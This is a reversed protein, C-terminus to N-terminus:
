NWESQVDNSVDYDYPEHNSKWSSGDSEVTPPVYSLTHGTHREGEGRSHHPSMYLTEGPYVDWESAKLHGPRPATHYVDWKPTEPTPPTYSRLEDQVRMGVIRDVKRDRGNVAPTWFRQSQPPNRATGSHAMSSLPHPSVDRPRAFIPITGDKTWQSTTPPSQSSQSHRDRTWPQVPAPRDAYSSTIKRAYVQDPSVFRSGDDSYSTLFSCSNFSRQDFTIVSSPPFQPTDLVSHSISGQQSGPLDEVWDLTTPAPGEESSYPGNIDQEVQPISHRIEPSIKQDWAQSGDISARRSASEQPRGTRSHAPSNQPFSCWNDPERRSPQVSPSSSAQTWASDENADRSANSQPNQSSKIAIHVSAPTQVHRRSRNSEPRARRAEFFGQTDVVTGVNSPVQRQKSAAPTALCSGPFVGPMTFSGEATAQKPDHVFSAPKTHAKRSVASTPTCAEQRKTVPIIKVHTGGKEPKKTPKPRRENANPSSKPREDMQMIPASCHRTEEDLPSIASTIPRETNVPLNLRFVAEEGNKGRVRVKRESRSVISPTALPSPPVDNRRLKQIPSHVVATTREESSAPLNLRSLAEEGNTGHIRIKRGLRNAPFPTAARPSDTTTVARIPISPKHVEGSVTSQRVGFPIRETRGDNGRVIIGAIRKRHQPIPLDEVYGTFIPAQIDGVRTPEETVIDIQRVLSRKAM